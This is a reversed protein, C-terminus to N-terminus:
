ANCTRTGQPDGGLPLVRSLGDWEYSLLYQAHEEEGPKLEYQFQVGRNELGWCCWRGLAEGVLSRFHTEDQRAFPFTSTLM